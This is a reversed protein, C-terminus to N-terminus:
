EGHAPLAAQAVKRFIYVFCRYQSPLREGLGQLNEAATIQMINFKSIHMEEEIELARKLELSYPSIFTLKNCYATIWTFV